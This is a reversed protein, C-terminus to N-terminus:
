TNYLSITDKYYKLLGEELGVLENDLDKGEEVVVLPSWPLVRFCTGLIIDGM